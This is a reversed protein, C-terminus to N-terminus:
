KLAAVLEEVASAATSVDAHLADLRREIATLRDNLLSTAFGPLFQESAPAHGNPAPESGEPAATRRPRPPVFTKAFERVVKPDFEWYTKDTGPRPQNRPALEKKWVLRRIVTPNVRLKEAVQKTTLYVALEGINDHVPDHPLRGLAASRLLM